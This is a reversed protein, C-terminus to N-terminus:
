DDFRIFVDCTRELHPQDVLVGSANILGFVERGFEYVNRKEKVSDVKNVTEHVEQNDIFFDYGCSSSYRYCRVHPFKAYPVNGSNQVM